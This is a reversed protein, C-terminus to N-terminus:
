NPEQSLHMHIIKWVGSEVRMVTTGRGGGSIEGASTMATWKFRYICAATAESMAIWQVDEVWYREMPFAAFTAEFASRIASIGSYSGDNFWFVAEASILPEVADFKHEALRREYEALLERPGTPARAPYSAPVAACTWRVENGFSARGKPACIKPTSVDILTTILRHPLNGATALRLSVESADLQSMRFVGPRDAQAESLIMAKGDALVATAQRSAMTADAGLLMNVAAVSVYALFHWSMM